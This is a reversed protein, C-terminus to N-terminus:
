AAAFRVPLAQPRRSCPRAELLPYYTQASEIIVGAITALSAAFGISAIVASAPDM